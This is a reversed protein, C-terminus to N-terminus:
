LFHAQRRERHACSWRFSRLEVAREVEKRTAAVLESQSLHPLPFDVPRPIARLGLSTIPHPEAAEVELTLRAFQDSAREQVLAVVKVLTSEELKKFDFGGTMERFQVDRDLRELGSPYNKQLFERLNNRDGRNFAELWASLQHGAPTDPVQTQAACLFAAFFLLSISKVFRMAM